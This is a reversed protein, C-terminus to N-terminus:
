ILYAQFHSPNTFIHILLIEEAGSTPAYVSICVGSLGKVNDQLASCDWMWGHLSPQQEVKLYMRLLFSLVHMGSLLGQWPLLFQVHGLHGISPTHLLWIVSYNISSSCYLLLINCLLLSCPHFEIVSYLTFCCTERSQILWLHYRKMFNLALCFSVIYWKLM